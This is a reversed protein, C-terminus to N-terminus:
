PDRETSPTEADAYAAAYAAAYRREAHRLAGRRTPSAPAPRFGDVSRRATGKGSRRGPSTPIGAAGPGDIDLELIERAFGRASAPTEADAEIGRRSTGAGRASETVIAASARGATTARNVPDRRLADRRQTTADPDASDRSSQQQAVSQRRRPQGRPDPAEIAPEATTGTEIADFAVPRAAPTHGPAALVAIGALTALAAPVLYRPRTPASLEGLRSDVKAVFEGARRYVVRQGPTKDRAATASGEVATTLLQRAGLRRDAIQAAAGRDVRGRLLGDLAAAAVPAVFLLVAVVVPVAAAFRHIVAAAVLASAGVVAGQMGRTLVTALWLRQRARDVFTDVTTM